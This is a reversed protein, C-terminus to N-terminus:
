VRVGDWTIAWDRCHPRRWRWFLDRGRELGAEALLERLRALRASLYGGREVLVRADLALDLHLPTVDAEFECPTRAVVQVGVGHLLLAVGGLQRARDFPDAALGDAVLLVDYDSDTRHDGRARSGFAAIGRVGAGFTEELRTAIRDWPERADM